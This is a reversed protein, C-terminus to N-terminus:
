GGVCRCGQATLALPWATAIRSDGPAWGGEGEGEGGDGDGDGDLEEKQKACPAHRVSLVPVVAPRHRQAGHRRRLGAAVGARPLRRRELEELDVPVVAADAGRPDAPRRLAVRGVAAREAEAGGFLM